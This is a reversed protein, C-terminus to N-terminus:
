NQLKKDYTLLILLVIEFDPQFFTHVSKFFLILIMKIRTSALFTHDSKVFFICIM